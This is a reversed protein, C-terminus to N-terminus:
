EPGGEPQQLAARFELELSTAGRIHNGDQVLVTGEHTDIFRGTLLTAETTDPTPAIDGSYTRRCACHKCGTDTHASRGHDCTEEATGEGADPETLRAYEAAICAADAEHSGLGLGDAGGRVREHVTRFLAEALREVDLASPRERAADHETPWLDFDPVCIYTIGESEFVRPEGMDGPDARTQAIVVPGSEIRLERTTTWTPQDTGV